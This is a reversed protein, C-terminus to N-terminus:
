RGPAPGSRPWRGPPSPPFGTGTCRIGCCRAPPGPQAQRSVGGRDPPCGGDGPPPSTFRHDGGSEVVQPGAGGVLREREEGLVAVVGFEQGSAMGQQRQHLEAQGRRGDEDVDAAQRVQGVDSVAAVVHRDARQGAVTIQLPACQEGGLHRDQGVHGAEDAVGLHAVPARDPPRQGVGVRGGVKRGHDQRQAPGQHGPARAAFPLDGGPLEETAEQLRREVGVLHQGLDPHGLHAAPTPAVLLEVAPRDVPGDDPDGGDM